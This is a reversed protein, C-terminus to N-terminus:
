HIIDSNPTNMNNNYCKVPYLVLGFKSNNAVSLKQKMLCDEEICDESSIEIQHLSREFEM